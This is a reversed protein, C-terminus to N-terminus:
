PVVEYVLVQADQDLRQTPWQASYGKSGSALSPVGLYFRNVEPFFRGTKAGYKTPINAIVQYDDAGRQQVM